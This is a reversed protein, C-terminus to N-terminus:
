IDGPYRESIKKNFRERQSNNVEIEGVRWKGARVEILMASIRHTLTDALMHTVGRSGGRVIASVLRDQLMDQLQAHIRKTLEDTVADTIQTGLDAGIGWTSSESSGPLGGAHGEKSQLFEATTATTPPTPGGGLPDLNLTTPETLPIKLAEEVIQVILVTLPEKGWEFYRPSSSILLHSSSSDFASIHLPLPLPPVFAHNTILYSTQIREM